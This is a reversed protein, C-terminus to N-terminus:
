KGWNDNNRDVVVLLNNENGMYTISVLEDNPHRGFWDNLTIDPYSSPRTNVIFSYYKHRGNDM